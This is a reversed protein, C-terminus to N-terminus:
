DTADKLLFSRAVMSVTREASHIKIFYPTPTMGSPAVELKYKIEWLRFYWRSPHKFQPTPRHDDKIADNGM